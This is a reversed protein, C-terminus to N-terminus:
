PQKQVVVSKKDESLEVRAAETTKEKKRREFYEPYKKHQGETTDIHMVRHRPIYCPMYGMERFARSAEADQMGHLFKDQWRFVEYARADVFACLGGVHQAVEVFYPGIYAHGVRAGGGPNQVLGEPYPSMYLKHNRKWLDVFDELWGFTKFECDNDVKIIIKPKIKETMMDLLYNSAFTLGKNYGAGSVYRTTQVLWEPTGDKSGNDFVCWYAPYKTSKKLSAAMRKTYELRDYTITFIAVSPLIEDVRNNGLYPLYIYCGAPDFTPEFMTMGLESDYWSKTEVKKSKQTTHVYYNTAIVPVRQIKAGWKAMRVWMNWDIFKPLTEDFGGVAFALDRKHMVESTDIYNRNLLFQADYDFHIAQFGASEPKDEDYIWMDCYVLDLKPNKEFAKLLVELHYPHFENDDDLYALYEGESAMIGVNKPHTDSGSNEKLRHYFIREDKFSNVVEQTNDGSCDDVVICEWDHVTQAVVSEIARKLKDARNFTSIIVSVKPKKEM